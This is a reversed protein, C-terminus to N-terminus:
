LNKYWVIKHCNNDSGGGVESCDANGSNYINDDTDRNGNLIDINLPTAITNNSNFNLTIRAM